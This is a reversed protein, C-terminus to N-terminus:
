FPLNGAETPPLETVQPIRQQGLAEARNRARAAKGAEVMQRMVGKDDTM